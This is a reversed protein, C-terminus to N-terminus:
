EYLNKDAIKKDLFDSGKGKQRAENWFKFAKEKDGLRFLIDGYHELIVSNTDSGNMLAKEIWKKAEEYDGKQYLIWGYTDM